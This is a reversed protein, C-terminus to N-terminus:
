LHVSEGHSARGAKLIQDAAQFIRHASREPIPEGRLWHQVYGRSFEAGGLGLSEICIMAVCEAEVERLNRPTRETDDLPGFEATHGLLVHALEHFLTRYPAFAIPSVAVRRGDAFGQCNGDLHDFPVREVALTALARAEQWAPLDAPRYARGDTQALVFWHPRYLFKTYTAPSTDAPVDASEPETNTVKIKVNVPMCLTIAREGKKVFRGLRQWGLFTHIPGPQIKRQV